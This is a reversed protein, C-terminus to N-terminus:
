ERNFMQRLSGAGTRQHRGATQAADRTHYSLGSANGHNFMMTPQLLLAGQNLDRRNVTALRFKCVTCFSTGAQYLYV